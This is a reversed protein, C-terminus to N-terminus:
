PFLSILKDGWKEIATYEVKAKQKALVSSHEPYCDVIWFYDDLTDIDVENENNTYSVLDDGAAETDSVCSLATFEESKARFATESM